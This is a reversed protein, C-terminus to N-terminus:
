RGLYRSLISINSMTIVKSFRVRQFLFFDWFYSDMVLREDYIIRSIELLFIYLTFNTKDQLLHFPLKIVELFSQYLCQDMPRIMKLSEIRQLLVM